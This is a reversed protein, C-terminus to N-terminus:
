GDAEGTEVLELRMLLNEPPDPCAVRPHTALWADVDPTDIRGNLLPAVSAIAYFCFGKGPPLELGESTVEFYDGVEMGCPSYNMSEVTCRIRRRRSV